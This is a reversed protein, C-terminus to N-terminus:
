SKAPETAASDGPAVHKLRLMLAGGVPNAAFEDSPRMDPDGVVETEYKSYVFTTVLKIEAVTGCDAM